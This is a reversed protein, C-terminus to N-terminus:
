GLAEDVLQAVIQVAEALIMPKEDMANAHPRFHRCIALYHEPHDERMRELAAAVTRQELTLESDDSDPIVGAGLGRFSYCVSPYGLKTAKIYDRGWERLLEVAWAPELNM